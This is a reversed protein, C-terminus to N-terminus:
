TASPAPAAGPDPGHLRRRLVEPRLHPKCVYCPRPHDSDRTGPMWGDECHHEVPEDPEGTRDLRTDDQTM